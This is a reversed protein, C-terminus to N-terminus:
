MPLNESDQLRITKGNERTNPVMKGFKFEKVMNKEMKGSGTINQAM